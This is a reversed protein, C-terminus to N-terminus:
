QLADLGEKNEINIATVDANIKKTLSTLTKGPGAELFRDAGDAILNEVIKQWRVPNNVQMSILKKMDGEYPMATYNSYVPLSPESLTVDRLYGALKEAADNMFPSHFAGSVALRVAKGKQAKVKECLEDIESNDCAVVTQAPSNYNVPYAKEFGSCLEEVAEPTIKMVAAMTGPNDKAAQDMFEARKCVLRFADEYTM